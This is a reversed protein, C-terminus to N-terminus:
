IWEKRKETKNLELLGVNQASSAGGDKPKRTPTALLSVPLFLSLDSYKRGTGM